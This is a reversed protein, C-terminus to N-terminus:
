WFRISTRRSWYLHLPKYKAFRGDALMPVDHFESFDHAYLQLLNALVPEQEAAAAVIEIHAPLTAARKTM